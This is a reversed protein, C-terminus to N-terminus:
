KYSSGRKEASVFRSFIQVYIKLALFTMGKILKRRTKAYKISM